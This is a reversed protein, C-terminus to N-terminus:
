PPLCHTPTHSPPVFDLAHTDLVCALYTLPHSSTSVDVRKCPLGPVAAVLKGGKFASLLVHMSALM